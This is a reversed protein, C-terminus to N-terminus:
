AIGMPPPTGPRPRGSPCAPELWQALLAEEWADRAPDGSASAYVWGLSSATVDAAALAATLAGPSSTRGVGHPRAPLARWAAGRIEGLVPAGRRSASRASELVLFTAGEGRADSWAGMEALTAMVEPDREDVGGVLVAEARGAAVAAAGRAVALEGGVSPANLTLSMARASVAIATTSAMTNM